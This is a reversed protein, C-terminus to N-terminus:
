RGDLATKIEDHEIPQDCDIVLEARDPGKYIYKYLYKVAEEAFIREVNLHCDFRLLLEPSHPVVWRNDLEHM